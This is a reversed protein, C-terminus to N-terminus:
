PAGSREPAKRGTIGWALLDTSKRSDAIDWRMYSLERLFLLKDPFDDHDPLLVPIVPLGSEVCQSVFARVELAQWKGLGAGSLFVAVARVNPIASQIVDQFWRGPPIQEVDIWPNIGIARLNHCIELVIGKDKSNHAMFVDFQDASTKGELTPEAQGTAIEVDRSVFLGLLSTIKDVLNDKSLQLSSEPPAITACVRTLEATDLQHLLERVRRSTLATRLRAQDHAGAFRALVATRRDASLGHLGHWLRSEPNLSAGEAAIGPVEQEYQAEEKLISKLRQRLEPATAIRERRPTVHLTELIPEELPLSFVQPDDQHPYVVSEVVSEYQELANFLDNTVSQAVRSLHPAVAGSETAYADAELKVRFSRLEILARERALDAGQQAPRHHNALSTFVERLRTRQTHLTTRQADKFAVRLEETTSEAEALARTVGSDCELFATFKDASNVDVAPLAQGIPLDACRESLWKPTHRLLNLLFSTLVGQYERTADLWDDRDGNLGYYAALEDLVQRAGSTPEVSLPLARAATVVLDHEVGMDGVKVGTLPHWSQRSTKFRKLSLREPTAEQWWALLAERPSTWKELRRLERVADNLAPPSEYSLKALAETRLHELCALCERIDQIAEVSAAGQEFVTAIRRRHECSDLASKLERVIVKAKDPVYSDRDADTPASAWLSRDTAVLRRIIEAVAQLRRWADRRTSLWMHVDTMSANVQKGLHEIDHEVRRWREIAARNREYFEDIWTRLHDYIDSAQMAEVPMVDVTLHGIDTFVLICPVHRGIGLRHAFEMSLGSGPMATHTDCEYSILREIDEISKLPHLASPRLSRWPRRGEYDYRRYDSFPNALREIIRRLVTKPSSLSSRRNMEEHVIHDLEEKRLESFFIFRIRDATRYCLDACYAHLFDKCLSSSDNVFVISWNFRDTLSRATDDLRFVYRYVEDASPAQFGLANGGIGVM